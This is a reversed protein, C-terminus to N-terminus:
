ESEESVEGSPKYKQTEVGQLRGESKISLRIIQLVKQLAM